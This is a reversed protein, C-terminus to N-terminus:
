ANGDIPRLSNYHEGLGYHHRHYVLWLTVQDTEQVRPIPEVEEIRGDGQLVHVRVGYARAIALLELHGGWEATERIKRTYADVPEDLFPAFDAPNRDMYGAAAHRVLRFGTVEHEDEKAYGSGRQDSGWTPMLLTLQDAVASYLCHGDPRIEKEEFGRKKMEAALVSREQERHNPIDAAEEAGQAALAEQEAARRALRAKARNPKRTSGTSKAGSGDPPHSGTTGGPTLAAAEAEEAENGDLEHAEVVTQEVPPVDGGRLEALERAHRDKLQQELAECEAHIAQRTKKTAVSKKQRIRSQLDHHDKQHTSILEDM